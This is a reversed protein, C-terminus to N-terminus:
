YIYHVLCFDRISSNLLRFAKGHTTLRFSTYEIEYLTENNTSNFDNKELIEREFFKYIYFLCTPLSFTLLIFYIPIKNLLKFIQTLKRYLNFTAASELFISIMSFCFVFYIIFIMQFVQFAYTKSISLNFFNLFIRTLNMFSLYCDCVLKLWYYKFLDSTPQKKEKLLLTFVLLSTMNFLIGIPSFILLIIYTDM